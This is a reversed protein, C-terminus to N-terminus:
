SDRAEGILRLAADNVLDTESFGRAFSAATVGEWAVWKGGSTPKRISARLNPNARADLLM